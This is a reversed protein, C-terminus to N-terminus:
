IVLPGASSASLGRPKRRSRSFTHPVSSFLIRIKVLILFPYNINYFALDPHRQTKKFLTYTHSLNHLHMVQMDDPTSTKTERKECVVSHHSTRRLSFIRLRIWPHKLKLEMGKLYVRFEAYLHDACSHVPCISDRRKMESRAYRDFHGGRRM